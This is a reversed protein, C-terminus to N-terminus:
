GILKKHWIILAKKVTKRNCHFGMAGEIGCFLGEIRHGIIRISLDLVAELYKAVDSCTNMSCDKDRRQAEQAYRHSSRGKGGVEEIEHQRHVPNGFPVPTLFKGIEATLPKQMGKQEQNCHVQQPKHGGAIKGIGNVVQLDFQWQQRHREYHQRRPRERATLSPNCAREINCGNKHNGYDSYHAIEGDGTQGITGYHWIDGM